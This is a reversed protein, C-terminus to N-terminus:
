RCGTVDIDLARYSEIMTATLTDTRAAADDAGTRLAEEAATKAETLRLALAPDARRLDGDLDHFALHPGENFTDLAADPDTEAQETALCLDDIVQQAEPAPHGPRLVLFAFGAICAVIGAVLLQEYRTFKRRDPMPDETDDLRRNVRVLWLAGAGVAALVALTSGPGGPGHDAHALVGYPNM